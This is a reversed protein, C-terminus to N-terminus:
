LSFGFTHKLDRALGELDPFLAAETIGHRFLARRLERIVGRTLVLRVLCETPFMSRAAITEMPRTEKGFLVFTGQQAVIRSSTHAGYLAVPPSPLEHISGISRYPIVSEHSPDLPGVDYSLHKLAARNWAAADLVWVTADHTCFMDGHTGRRFSVHRLAFFLAFFPNETWDLLRTPVGFHQMLFLIELDDPDLPHAHYPISRERFRDVLRQELESLSLPPTSTPRPRYLSPLLRYSLKSAGRYWLPGDISQDLENVNDVFEALSKPKFTNM